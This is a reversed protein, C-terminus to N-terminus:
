NKTKIQKFVAVVKMDITKKQKMLYNKARNTEVLINSSLIM